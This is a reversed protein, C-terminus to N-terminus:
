TKFNPNQRIVNKAHTPHLFRKFFSVMFYFWAAGMM